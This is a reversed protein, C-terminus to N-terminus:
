ASLRLKRRVLRGKLRTIPKWQAIVLSELDTPVNTLQEHGDNTVLVTDSHRVGGLGRLYVGPEISIVMNKRLRDDSGEALWPREHNGLGIGHGTRHLRQEEEGYGETSLFQNVAADIEGCLIGPKIMAFAIRRAEMMAAFAQVAEKSPKSTFFTRESEAAYGNVRTLVLAVHPGDNLRHELSPISHPMASHPAAWSAMLVKTNLADWDEVERIIKASVTSTEAFGEAVTADYYASALLREVGYDAYRAARRIMALEADSKVLRQREILSCTLPSFDALEDAIERRITPEVGIRGDPLLRMLSSPWSAEVPAPYERYTYINGQDIGQAKHMHEEDLKPVLLKPSGTPRVVLFFPRELPEFGAGTLYYISEFSSIIFAGLDLNKIERQLANLRQHYESTAIKPQM